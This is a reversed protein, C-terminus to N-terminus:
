DEMKFGTFVLNTPELVPMDLCGSEKVESWCQKFTLAKIKWKDFRSSAIYEKDTANVIGELDTARAIYQGDVYKISISTHDAENVLFGEIIFPNKNEDLDNEYEENLIVVPENADSYWVYGLYKAKKIEAIKEM